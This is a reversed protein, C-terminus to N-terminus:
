DKGDRYRPINYVTGRQRLGQTTIFEETSVNGTRLYNVTEKHLNKVARILLKDAVRDQLIEERCIYLNVILIHILPTRPILDINFIYQDEIYRHSEVCYIVNFM